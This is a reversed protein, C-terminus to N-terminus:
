VAIKKLPHTLEKADGFHDESSLSEVAEAIQEFTWGDDNWGALRQADHYNLGAWELVEDPPMEADSGRDGEWTYKDAGADPEMWVRRDRLDCLVGLCCYASNGDPLAERLAGKTQKLEPNRLARIWWRKVSGNM